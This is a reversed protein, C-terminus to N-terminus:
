GCAPLYGPALRNSPRFPALKKNLKWVRSWLLPLWVDPMDDPHEWLLEAMEMRTLYPNGLLALVVTGQVESLAARLRGQKIEFPALRNGRWRHGPKLMVLKM